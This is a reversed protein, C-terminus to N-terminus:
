NERLKGVVERGGGLANSVTLWGELFRRGGWCYKENFYAQEYIFFARLSTVRQAIRSTYWLIGAKTTDAGPIEVTQRTNSRWPEVHDCHLRKFSRHLTLIELSPFLRLM